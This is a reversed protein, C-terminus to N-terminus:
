YRSRKTEDVMYNLGSKEPRRLRREIQREVVADRDAELDRLREALGHLVRSYEALQADIKQYLDNSPAQQKTDLDELGCMKLVRNLKVDIAQLLEDSVTRKETAPAKTECQGFDKDDNM